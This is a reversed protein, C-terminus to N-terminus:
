HCQYIRCHFDSRMFRYLFIWFTCVSWGMRSYKTRDLKNDQWNSVDQFDYVRANNFDQGPFLINDLDSPHADAIPHQNVDWRGFCLDLGGMFAVKSDVLCLKEHHAWYLIVDNRAGYLAKIGEEPLKALDLDKLSFNKLDTIIESEVHIGSPAHDPHRFVSINPHVELAKKTHESCVSTM